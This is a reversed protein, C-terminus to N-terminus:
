CSVLLVLWLLFTVLFIKTKFNPWRFFGYCTKLIQSLFNPQLEETHGRSGAGSVSVAEAGQEAQLPIGACQFLHSLALNLRESRVASVDWMGGTTKGRSLCSTGSGRWDRFEPTNKESCERSIGQLQLKGALDMHHSPPCLWTPGESTLWIRDATALGALDWPGPPLRLHPSAWGQGKCPRM